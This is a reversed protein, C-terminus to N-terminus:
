PNRLLVGMFAVYLVLAGVAAVTVTVGPASLARLVLALGLLAWVAAHGWRLLLYRLTSIDGTAKASPWFLAFAAAAALCLAGWILLPVGFLTANM